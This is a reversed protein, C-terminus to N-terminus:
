TLLHERWVSALCFLQMVPKLPKVRVCNSNCGFFNKQGVEISHYHPFFLHIFFKKKLLNNQYESVQWILIVLFLIKSNVAGIRFFIIVRM